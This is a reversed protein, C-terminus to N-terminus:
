EHPDELQPWARGIFHSLLEGRSSVEFHRYLAMVHDHITARGLDFEFAIQKEADGRLLRALVQRQRPTLSTLRPEDARALFGGLERSIIDHVICIQARQRETFGDEGVQRHVWISLSRGPIDTARVSMVYDDIGCARHIDNFTKSRYWTERGWIEDRSLTLRDGAFRNIYPFEPTRHVPVSETYQTWREESKPDAWGIRHTALSRMPGQADAGLNILEAMIVVRADVLTRLGDILHIRWLDPDAGLQRCQGALGHCAHTERSSLHNLM